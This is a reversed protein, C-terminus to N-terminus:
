HCGPCWNNDSGGSDDCDDSEDSEDCDFLGDVWVFFDYVTTWMYPWMRPSPPGGRGGRLQNAEVTTSSSEQGSHSTPLVTADQSTAAFGPKVYPRLRPWSELKQLIRAVESVFFPPPAPPPAGTSSTGTSDAGAPQATVQAVFALLVATFFKKM